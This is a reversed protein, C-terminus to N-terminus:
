EIVRSNGVLDYAACPWWRVHRKKGHIVLGAGVAPKLEAILQGKFRSLLHWKRARDLSAWCSLARSECETGTTPIGMAWYSRFDNATPPDTAVFRYIAEGTPDAAADPPCGASLQEAWGASCPRNGTRCM